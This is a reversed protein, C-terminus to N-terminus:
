DDIMEPRRPRSLRDTNDMRPGPLSPADRGPMAVRVIEDARDIALERGSITMTMAKARSRGLM